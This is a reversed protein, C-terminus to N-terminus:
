QIAFSSHIQIPTIANYVTVSICCRAFQLIQINIFTCGEKGGDRVEM